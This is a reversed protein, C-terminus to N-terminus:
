QRREPGRVLSAKGEAVASRRKRIENLTAREVDRDVEGELSALLKEVLLARGSTPLALVKEALAEVSAM